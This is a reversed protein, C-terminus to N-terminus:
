LNLTPRKLFHYSGGKGAIGHASHKVYNKQCWVLNSYELPSPDSM